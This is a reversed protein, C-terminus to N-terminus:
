FWQACKDSNAKLDPINSNIHQFSKVVSKCRTKIHMVVVYFYCFRMIPQPCRNVNQADLERCFRLFFLAKTLHCRLSLINLEEDPDTIQKFLMTMCIYLYACGSILPLTYYSRHASFHWRFDFNQHTQLNLVHEIDSALVFIKM